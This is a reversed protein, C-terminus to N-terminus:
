LLASSTTVCSGVAAPLVDPLPAEAPAAAKVLFDAVVANVDDLANDRADGVTDLLVVLLGDDAEVRSVRLLTVPSLLGDEFIAIFSSNFRLAAAKFHM